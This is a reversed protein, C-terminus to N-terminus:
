FYDRINKITVQEFHRENIIRAYDKAEAVKDGYFERIHKKLAEVLQAQQEKGQTCLVYDPAICTQGCNVFKGWVLRKATM